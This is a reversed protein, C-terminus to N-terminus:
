RYVFALRYLYLGKDQLRQIFNRQDMPTVVMKFVKKMTTTAKKSVKVCHALEQTVKAIEKHSIHIKQKVM